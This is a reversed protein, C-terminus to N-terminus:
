FLPNAQKAEASYCYRGSTRARQGARQCIQPARRRLATNTTDMTCLLGDGHAFQGPTDGRLFASSARRVAKDTQAEAQHSDGAATSGGCGMPRPNPGEQPQLSAADHVGFWTCSNSTAVLSYNINMVPSAEPIGLTNTYRSGWNLIVDCAAMHQVVHLSGRNRMLEFDPDFAFNKHKCCTRLAAPPARVLHQWWAKVCASLARPWCVLTTCVREDACGCSVRGDAFRVTIYLEVVHESVDSLLM